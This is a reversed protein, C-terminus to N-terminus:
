QVSNADDEVNSVRKKPLTTQLLVVGTESMDDAANEFILLCASLEAKASKSISNVLMPGIGHISKGNVIIM